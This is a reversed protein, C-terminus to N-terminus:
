LSFSVNVIFEIHVKHGGIGMTQFKQTCVALINQKQTEVIIHQVLLRQGLLAKQEVTETLKLM